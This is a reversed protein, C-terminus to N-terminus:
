TSDFVFNTWPFEIMAILNSRTTDTQTKSDRAAHPPPPLPPALAGATVVLRDVLTCPVHFHIDAVWLPLGLAIFVEAVPAVSRIAGEVKVNM